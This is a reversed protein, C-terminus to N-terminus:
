AASEMDWTLANAPQHGPEITLGDEAAIEADLEAHRRAVDEPSEAAEVPTPADDMLHALLLRRQVSQGKGRPTTEMLGLKELDTLAKPIMSRSRPSMGSEKAIRSVTPWCVGNEDAHTALILLVHAANRKLGHAEPAKWAARIYRYGASM